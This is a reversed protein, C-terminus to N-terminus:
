YILESQLSQKFQGYYVSDKGGARAIAKLSAIDCLAERDSSSYRGYAGSDRLYFHNAEHVLYGIYGYINESKSLLAQNQEFLDGNIFCTGNSSIDSYAYTKSFRPPADYVIRDLHHIVFARNENDMANLCESVFSRFSAPGTIDTKDENGASDTSIYVQWRQADFEVRCNLSQAIASLPVMTRGDIIQPPVDTELLRGNVVISIPPGAQGPLGIILSGTLILLFLAKKM